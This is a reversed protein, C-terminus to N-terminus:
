LDSTDNECKDNMKKSIKLCWEVIMMKKASFGWWYATHGWNEVKVQYDIVSGEQKLKNFEEVIDFKNKRWVQWLTGEAFEMWNLTNGKDQVWGQYWSDVTGNLYATAVTM